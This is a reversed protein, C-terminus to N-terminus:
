GPVKATLLVVDVHISPLPNALLAAREKEPAQWTLPTMAVIDAFLEANCEFDYTIPTQTANPYRELFHSLVRENSYTAKPTDAYLAQRLERLYGSAPIIKYITSGPALVREFEQYAGPSFIDAIATFSDNMFPLHALDAVCFIAPSNLAGALKIAPTSIDFGVTLDPKAALKATPTGEGCGIDLLRDAHTLQDAIANLFPDFFGADLVRRRAALMPETYETPFPTSLFNVTGKKSLDYRHGQICVLSTDSVTLAGGCVPCAFLQGAAAITAAKENIKRM